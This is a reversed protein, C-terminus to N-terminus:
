VFSFKTFLSNSDSSSMSEKKTKEIEIEEESGSEYEIVRKIKRKKPTKEKKASLIEKKGSEEGQIKMEAEMEARIKQRIMEERVKMRIKKEEEETEVLEQKIKVSNKKGELCKEWAKARAPTWARKKIKENKEEQLSINEDGEKKDVTETADDDSTDSM